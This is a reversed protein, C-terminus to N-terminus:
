LMMIQSPFQCITIKQHLSLTIGYFSYLGGERFLGRERIGRKCAFIAFVGGERNLGREIGAM